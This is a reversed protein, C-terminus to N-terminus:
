PQYVYTVEESYSTGMDFDSGSIHMQVRFRNEGVDLAVDEFTVSVDMIASCRGTQVPSSREWQPSAWLPMWSDGDWKWLTTYVGYDHYAARFTYEETGSFTMTMTPTGVVTGAIPDFQDLTVWVYEPDCPGLCESAGMGTVLVVLLGFTRLVRRSMTGHGGTRLYPKIRRIGKGARM